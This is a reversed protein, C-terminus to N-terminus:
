KHLTCNISLTSFLGMINLTKISFVTISFTTACNFCTKVKINAHDVQCEQKGAAAACDYFLQIFIRRKLTKIWGYSVNPSFLFPAKHEQQGATTACHYLVQSMIRLKLNSDLWLQCQSLISFPSSTGPPWCCCCMSLQSMIRLKLIQIWGYSVNPSFLFPAQHVQQGATTTGTM